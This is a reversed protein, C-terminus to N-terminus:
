TRSLALIVARMAETSANYFEARLQGASDMLFIQPSHSVSYDGGEGTVAGKFFAASFEKAIAKIDAPEGTLGVFQSSFHSLYTDIVDPTDRDGDISIMVYAVDALESGGSLELQRLSSMAAPCVDSCHTFGFFILAVQGKLQSLKFPRGDQDLLEADTINRPSPLVRVRDYSPLELDAAHGPMASLQLSCLLIAAALLRTTKM